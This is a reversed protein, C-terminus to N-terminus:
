HSMKSWKKLTTTHLHLLDAGYPFKVKLIIKKFYIFTERGKNSHFMELCLQVMSRFDCSKAAEQIQVYIPLFKRGHVTTTPKKFMKKDNLNM